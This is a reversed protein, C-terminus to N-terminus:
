LWIKMVTGLIIARSPTMVTGLIIVRSPTMVTCREISMTLDKNIETRRSNKSDGFTSM